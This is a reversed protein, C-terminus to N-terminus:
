FRRSELFTLGAVESSRRSIKCLKTRCHSERSLRRMWQTWSRSSKRPSTSKPTANRTTLFTSSARLSVSPNWSRRSTRPHPNKIVSQQPRTLMSQLRSVRPTKSIHLPAFRYKQTIWKSGDYSVPGTNLHGKPDYLEDPRVIPEDIDSGDLTVIMSVPRDAPFPAKFSYHIEFTADSQAEIYKEATKPPVKVPHDDYERVSQGNVLVRLELGPTEDIVAMTNPDRAHPTPDISCLQHLHPPPTICSDRLPDHLLYAARLHSRDPTSTLTFPSLECTLSACCPTQRSSRQRAISFKVRPASAENM